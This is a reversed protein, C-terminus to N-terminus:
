KGPLNFFYAYSINDINLWTNKHEWVKGSSTTVTNFLNLGYWGTHVCVEATVVPPAGNINKRQSRAGICVMTHKSYQTDYAWPLTQIIVPRNAKLENEIRGISFTFVAYASPRNSYNPMLENICKNVGSAYTNGWCFLPKGGLGFLGHRKFISLLEQHLMEANGYDKTIFREDNAISKNLIEPTIDTHFIPYGHKRKLYNLALGCAVQNCTGNKNFGFAYQTIYKADQLWAFSTTETSGNGAGPSDDVIARESERDYVAKAITTEEAGTRLNVFRESDVCKVYYQLAGGYFKKENEWEAFPNFESWECIIQNRRDMIASGLSTAGLLFNPKNEADYLPEIVVDDAYIGRAELEHRMLEEEKASIEVRKEEVTDYVSLALSTNAFAFATFVAAFLISLFRKM